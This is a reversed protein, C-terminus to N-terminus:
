ESLMIREFERLVTRIKSPAIIKISRKEENDEYEKTYHTVPTWGTGGFTRKMGSSDVYHHIGDQADSVSDVTFSM